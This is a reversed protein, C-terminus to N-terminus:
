QTGNPTAYYGSRAEVQYAHNDVEIKIHRFTGDRKNNTSVYGISYQNRMEDQIEAFAKNLPHKRSVKFMHGGTERSMKKLDSAGGGGGFGYGAQMYFGRDVYYVSYIIADARQAAEIADDLKYYSGQDDGDTILVLAKRGAMGKLKETSALYVADYLLTGKPRGVQPVPGPNPIPAPGMVGGPGDGRLDKMAATLLRPSNTYDQLLDTQQGFSILFAEDKPRIVSSFFQAAAERETDILREQSVSVDILLGLTLPLNTERSFQQITQQRGDEYVKFDQKGLNPILRGNKKTRVSFFINVLDVNVRITSKPLPANKLVPGPGSQQDLSAPPSQANLQAAAFLVAAALYILAPLRSCM